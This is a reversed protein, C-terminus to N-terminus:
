AELSLEIARFSLVVTGGLGTTKSGSCDTANTREIESVHCHTYPPTAQTCICSRTKQAVSQKM